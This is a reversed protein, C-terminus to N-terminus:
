GRQHGSLQGLHREIRVVAFRQTVAPERIADHNIREARIAGVIAALQVPLVLAGGAGVDAHPEPVNGLASLQWRLQGVLGRGLVIGWSRLSSYWPWDRALTTNDGSRSRPNRFRLTCH